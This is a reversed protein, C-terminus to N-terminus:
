RLEVAFRLALSAVISVSSSFMMSMWNATWYLRLLASANTKLLRLGSSITLNTASDAIRSTTPLLLISKASYSPRSCIACRM